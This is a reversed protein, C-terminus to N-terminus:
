VKRCCLLLYASVATLSLQATSASAHLDNALIPLSPLYMDISLPGFASLSGLLLAMWLRKSRSHVPQHEQSELASERVNEGALRNNYKEMM